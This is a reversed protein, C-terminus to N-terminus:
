TKQFIGCFECTFVHASSEKKIYIYIYIFDRLDQLKMVFFRWCLHKGTLKVFSKLLGVNASCRCVAAKLFATIHTKIRDLFGQSVDM